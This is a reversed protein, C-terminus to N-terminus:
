RLAARAERDARNRACMEIWYSPKLPLLIAAAFLSIFFCLIFPVTYSGTTDYLRAVLWPGTMFGLNVAATFIGLLVGLNKVGFTHKALVTTDLLVAAHAVARFVVFAAFIAPNLVALALLSAGALTLYMLSVGNKSLKDFVGGVLVRALIGIAGMAAVAKSVLHGDMGMDVDLFLVQHQVFAQDVLAAAYVALAIFWFEKRKMLDRVSEKVDQIGADGAPNPAQRAASVVPDVGQGRYFFLLLPIAVIWIGTSMLATGIRWGYSEILPHIVLPVVTAGMATGLMAVGMATGQSAHFTRSVMVKIAVITGPSAVGLLVGAFYYWAMNPVWLFSILAIGGLTTLVLLASRVGVRDIVRGIVIAVIAGTGYKMSSLFTAQERTWGFEEIVGAYMFPMSFGPASFAFLLCLFATLLVPWNDRFERVFVTDSLNV